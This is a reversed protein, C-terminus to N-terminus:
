HGTCVFVLTATMKDITPMAVCKRAMEVTHLKPKAIQHKKTFRTNKKDHFRTSKRLLPTSVSPTPTKGCARTLGMHHLSVTLESLPYGRVKVAYHTFLLM